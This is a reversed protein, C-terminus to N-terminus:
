DLELHLELLRNNMKVIGGLVEGNLFSCADNVFCIKKIDINLKTALLRKVNLGYLSRYKKQQQILSIGEEYDFPGPMAIGIAANTIEINSLAKQIVACWSNIIEDATGEPNVSNRVSENNLLIGKNIDVLAATIHSGGIDVGLVVPNEM